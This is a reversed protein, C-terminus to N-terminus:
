PRLVAVGFSELESVTRRPNPLSEPFTVGPRADDALARRVALAGGVATLHAQGQRDVITASTTGSPGTVDSRVQASGGKGPSYLLGRRLPTFRDGRGWHFLGVKKAALLATTSANSSFGIRTNATEAGLTMPFTFQEPTDIRGVKTRSGPFDVWRTDTLPSVTIPNGQQMVEFDQGLRDIFDVSDLGAIDNVDYRISVDITSAGGLEEALAAAVINTVGGMWGSSLYVPASPSKQGALTAARAVRTTWRTIDVYPIGAEVAASLVRDHPDNVTSVVARVSADFPTPDLLDWRRVSAGHRGALEDGREPTRGTLLLPFDPALLATLASGVTGYGGAVLIPGDASYQLSDTM